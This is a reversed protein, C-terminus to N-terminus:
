REVREWRGVLRFCLVIMVAWLAASFAASGISGGMVVGAMTFFSGGYLVAYGPDNASLELFRDGAVRLLAGLALAGVIVGLTGFAWYLEAILGPPISSGDTKYVIVGVEVGADIIPKDPWLSRPVPAVIYTLLTSGNSVPLTDPVADMINVTKFIETFNVNLVIAENLSAFLQGVSFVETGGQAQQRLLTLLGMLMAGILAAIVLFGRRVSGGLLLHIVLAIIVIYAIQARTSAYAPLLIANLCLILLVGKRRVSYGEGTKPTMAFLAVAFWFAIASLQNATRQIGFSGAYEQGPTYISRKASLNELNLGGSASAYSLFAAFGIVAMLGIAAPAHDLFIFNRKRELRRGPSSLAGLAIYAVTLSAVGLLYLWYWEDVVALGQGRLYLSNVLEDDIGRNIVAISRLGCGLYTVLIVMSWVSLHSYSTILTPVTVVVCILAAYSVLRWTETHYALVYSWVALGLWAAISLNSLAAMAHPKPSIGQRDHKFIIRSTTM